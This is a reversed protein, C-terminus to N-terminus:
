PGHRREADRFGRVSIAESEHLILRLLPITDGPPSGTLLSSDLVVREVESLVMAHERRLEDETWGLRHRQAGHREAMMEQIAASDALLPLQEGGREDLIAFLQGIDSLYATIHDEL